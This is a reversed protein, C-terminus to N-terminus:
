KAPAPPAPPTPPRLFDRLRVADTPTRDKQTFLLGYERVVVVMGMGQVGDELALLWASLPLEGRPLDIKSAALQGPQFRYPIDKMGHDMLYEVIDKVEGDFPKDLKLPRDLAARIREAVPGTAKGPATGTVDWIRVGGDAMGVGLYRGDPTFALDAYTRLFAPRWTSSGTRGTLLNLDADLKALGAKAKALDMEAKQVDLVTTNANKYLQKQRELALTLMQVLLRDQERASHAATVLQIVQFRSQNLLANAERVKAEAVRIDPHSGLAAEILAELSNPDRAPAEATAPKAPPKPKDQGMAPAILLMMVWGASIRVRFM